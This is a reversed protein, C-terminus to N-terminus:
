TFKKAPKKIQNRKDACSDKLTILIFDENKGIIKWVFNLDSFGLYRFIGNLTYYMMNVDGIPVGSMVINSSREKSDINNIVRQQDIVTEKLKKFENTQVRIDTLETILRTIDSDHSSLKDNHNSLKDSHNNLKEDLAGIKGELKQCFNEINSIKESLPNLKRDFLLAIDELSVCRNCNGTHFSDALNLDHPDSDSSDRRSRKPTLRAFENFNSSSTNSSSPIESCSLSRGENRLIVSIKNKAIFNNHSNEPLGVYSNFEDKLINMSNAMLNGTKILDAM